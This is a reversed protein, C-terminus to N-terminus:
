DVTLRPSSVSISCKLFRSSAFRSRICIADEGYAGNVMFFTETSSKGPKAHFKTSCRQVIVESMKGREHKRGVRLVYGRLFLKLYLFIVISKKENEVLKCFM